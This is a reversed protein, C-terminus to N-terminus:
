GMIDKIESLETEAARLLKIVKIVTTKSSPNHLEFKCAKIQDIVQKMNASIIDCAEYLDLTKPTSDVSASSDAMLQDIEAEINNIDTM